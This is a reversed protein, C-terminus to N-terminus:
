TGLIEPEPIMQPGIPWKRTPKQRQTLVLRHDHTRKEATLELRRAFGNMPFHPGGVPETELLDFENGYSLYQVFVQKSVSACPLEPIGWKPSIQPGTLGLM